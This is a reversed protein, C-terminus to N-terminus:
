KRGPWQCKPLADWANADAVKRMSKHVAFGVHEPWCIRTSSAWAYDGSAFRVLRVPAFGRREGLRWAWAQCVIAVFPRHGAQTFM